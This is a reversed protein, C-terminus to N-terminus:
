KNKESCQPCRGSVVLQKHFIEAGEPSQVWPMPQHLLCIMQNCALCHFHIHNGSCQHTSSDYNACYRTVGDAGKVQHIAKAKLLLELTRYVTVRDIESIKKNLLLDSHSLPKAKNFLCNLIEVRAETARIKHHALFTIIDARKM